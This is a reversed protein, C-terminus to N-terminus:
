FRILVKYCCFDSLWLLHYLEASCRWLTLTSCLLIVKPLYPFNYNKVVFVCVCVCVCVCVFEKMEGVPWLYPHLSHIFAWLVHNWTCIHRKTDRRHDVIKPPGSGGFFRFKPTKFLCKLGIRGFIWIWMDEFSHITNACFKVPRFSKTPPGIHHYLFELIASPRWRSNRNQAMIQADILMKAGFKTCHYFIFLRLRCIPWFNPKQFHLLDSTRWRPNRNQAM